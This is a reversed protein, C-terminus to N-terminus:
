TEGQFHRIWPSPQSDYMKQSRNASDLPGQISQATFISRRNDTVHLMSPLFVSVAAVWKVSRDSAMLSSLHLLHLCAPIRYPALTCGDLILGPLLKLHCFSPSLLCSGVFHRLQFDSVQSHSTFIFMVTHLLHLQRKLARLLSPHARPFGKGSGVGSRVDSDRLLFLQSTCKSFTRQFDLM